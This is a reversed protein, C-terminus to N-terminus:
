ERGLRDAGLRSGSRAPPRLRRPTRSRGAPRCARADCARPARPADLPPARGARRTGGARSAAAATTAGHRHSARAAHRARPAARRPRPARCQPRRRATASRCAQRANSGAVTARANSRWARTADPGRASARPVARRAHRPLRPASPLPVQRPAPGRPVHSGACAATPSPPAARVRSPAVDHRDRPM